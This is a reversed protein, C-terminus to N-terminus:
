PTTTNNEMNVGSEQNSNRRHGELTRRFYVFIAAFLLILLTTLTLVISAISVISNTNVLYYWGGGPLVWRRWGDADAYSDLRRFKSDVMLYTLQSTNERLVLEHAVDHSTFVKFGYFESSINADVNSKEGSDFLFIRGTSEKVDFAILEDSVFIAPGFCKDLFLRNQEVNIHKGTSVILDRQLVIQTIGMMRASSVADSCDLSGISEISEIANVYTQPINQSPLMEDWIVPVSINAKLVNTIQVPGIWSYFHFWKPRPLLLIREEARPRAATKRFELYSQPLEINAVQLLPRSDSLLFFWVANLLVLTLAFWRLVRHKRLWLAALIFLFLSFIYNIKDPNRFMGGVFPLYTWLRNLSLDWFIGYLHLGAFLLFAV